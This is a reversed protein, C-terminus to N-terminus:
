PANHPREYDLVARPVIQRRRPMKTQSRVAIEDIPNAALQQADKIAAQSRQRAFQVYQEANEFGIFQRGLRAAVATTTGSGNFPDLVTDSRYTLLQILRRALEDPFAARHETKERNAPKIYWHGVTWEWFDDSRLDTKAGDIQPSHSDKGKQWISVYEFNTQFRPSSPSEPSGVMPRIGDCNQKYWIITDRYKLGLKRAIMSLDAHLNLRLDGNPRDEKTPYCNAYNIALRGGDVLVRAAEAMWRETWELYKAYDGDSVWRPYRVM